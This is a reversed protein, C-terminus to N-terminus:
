QTAKMAEEKSLDYVGAGVLFDKGQVKMIYSVKQSAEKEGPKPWWYESWGRGSESKAIAVFEAAFMNGKIDKIGILNKQELQPNLHAVITGDLSYVFIYSDKWVFPGKPDRIVPFAAEGKEEILTAAEEVKQVIEQPTAEGATSFDAVFLSMCLVLAAVLLKRM